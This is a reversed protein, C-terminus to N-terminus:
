KGKMLISMFENARPAMTKTNAIEKIKDGDFGYDIKPQKAREAVAAQQSRMKEVTSVPKEEGKQFGTASCGSLLDSAKKNGIYKLFKFPHKVNKKQKHYEEIAYVLAAQPLAMLEEKENQNFVLGLGVLGDVLEKGTNGMKSKGKQFFSSFLGMVQNVLGSSTNNSISTDQNTQKNKYINKYEKTYLTVNQQQGLGLAIKLINEKQQNKFPYALAKFFRKLLCVVWNKDFWESIEYVCSSMWQKTKRILGDEEMQRLVRNVQQRCCGILDALRQQSPRNKHYRQRNWILLNFVEKFIRSKSDLYKVINTIVETNPIFNLSSFEQNINSILM